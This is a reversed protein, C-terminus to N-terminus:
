ILGPKHVRILYTAMVVLDVPLPRPYSYGREILDDLVEEIIDQPIM